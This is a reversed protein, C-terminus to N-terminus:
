AQVKFGQFKANTKKVNQLFGYSQYEKNETFWFIHLGGHKYMGISLLSGACLM